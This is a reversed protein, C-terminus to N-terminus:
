PIRKWAEQYEQFIRPNVITSIHTEQVSDTTFIGKEFRLSAQIMAQNVVDTEVAIRARELVGYVTRADMHEARTVLNFGWDGFSPVYTRYPVATFGAAKLTRWITTFAERAHVPSTSQVTAAGNKTLHARLETYFELSYLKALELVRPDPLDVIIVDWLEDQRSLWSFADDNVVRVRSDDLSGENLARIRPDTRSLGTMAPDLDVLVISGVLPYKLVERVALGDGGGLVLVRTANPAIVFAPHVLMEHYRQEDSSCFQTGANIYLCTRGLDGQTMVLRQYPTQEAYVIPDRFRKREASSVIQEGFVGVLTIACLAVCLAGVMRKTTQSRFVLLFVAAVFANAFGAVISPFVAGFLPVLVIAYGLGAFFSGGYDAFLVLAVSEKLVAGSREKLRLFLPIELGVLTGILVCYGIAVLWTLAPVVSAANIVVVTSSITISLLMEVVVISRFVSEDSVSKNLLSGIGMALLFTSIVLSYALVSNGILTSVTTGVSYEAVMGSFGSMFMAFFIALTQLRV